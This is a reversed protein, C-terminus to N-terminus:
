RDLEGNSWGRAFSNRQYLLLARKKEISESRFVSHSSLTRSRERERERERMVSKRRGVRRWGVAADPDEMDENIMDTGSGVSPEYMVDNFPDDDSMIKDDGAQPFHESPIYLPHRSPNWARGKGGHKNPTTCTMSM